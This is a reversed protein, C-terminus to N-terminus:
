HREQECTFIDPWYYSSSYVSYLTTLFWYAWKFMLMLHPMSQPFPRPKTAHPVVGNLLCVSTNLGRPLQLASRHFRAVTDQNLPFTELIKVWSSGGTVTSRQGRGEVEAATPPPFFFFFFHNLDCRQLDAAGTHNWLASGWCCALIVCHKININSM